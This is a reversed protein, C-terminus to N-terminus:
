PPAPPAGPPRAHVTAAGAPVKGPPPREMAELGRVLADISTPCYVAVFRGSVCSQTRDGFCAYLEGSLRLDPAPKSLVLIAAADGNGSWKGGTQVEYHGQWASDQGPAFRATEAEPDAGGRRRLWVSTAPNAGTDACPPDVAAGLLHIELKEFRPRRDVFYRATGLAFPEGLITGNVPQVPITAANDPVEAPAHKESVAPSQCGLACLSVAVAFGRM